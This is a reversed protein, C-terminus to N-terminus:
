DGLDQQFDVQSSFNWILVNIKWLAAQVPHKESLITGNMNMLSLIQHPDHNLSIHELMSSLLQDLSAAVRKLGILGRQAKNLLFICCYVKLFSGM